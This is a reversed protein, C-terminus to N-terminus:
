FLIVWLAENWSLVTLGTLSGYKQLFDPLMWRLVPNDPLWQLVEM